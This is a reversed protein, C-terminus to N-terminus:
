KTFIKAHINVKQPIKYFTIELQSMTLCLSSPRIITVERWGESILELGMLVAQTFSPIEEYYNKSSKKNPNWCFQLTYM